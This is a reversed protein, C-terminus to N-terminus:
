ISIQSPATASRFRQIYADNWPLPVRILLCRVLRRPGSSSASIDPDIHSASPIQERETVPGGSSPRDTESGECIECKELSLVVTWSHGWFRESPACSPQYAKDVPRHRMWVFCDHLQGLALLFCVLCWVLLDSTHSLVFWGFRGTSEKEIWTRDTCTMDGKLLLIALGPHQFSVLTVLQGGQLHWHKGMLAKSKGGKRVLRPSIGQGTCFRYQKWREEGM